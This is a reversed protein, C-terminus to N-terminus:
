LAVVQVNGGAMEGFCNTAFKVVDEIALDPHSTTIITRAPDSGDGFIIQDIRLEISRCGDGVVAILEVKDRLCDEVFPKLAEDNQLPACLVIKSAYSV